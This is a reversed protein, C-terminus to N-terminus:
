RLENLIFREVQILLLHVITSPVHNPHLIRSRIPEHHDPLFRDYAYLFFVCVDHGASIDNISLGKLHFLKM